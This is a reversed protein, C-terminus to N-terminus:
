IVKENNSELCKMEHCGAEYTKMEKSKPKEGNNDILSSKFCM